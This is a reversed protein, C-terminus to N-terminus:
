ENTQLDYNNNVFMKHFSHKQLYNEFQPTLKGMVKKAINIAANLDRDIILGNKLEVQRDSLDLKKFREGTLCNTQSTWAENVLQVNIGACEGKYKLYTKFRSLSGRSQTSKNLRKNKGVLNKTKIDGIILNGLKNDVCHNIIKRSTQHQFNKNKNHLKKNLKKYRRSIKKHKRSGKKYKDRISQIYKIRKELKKFQNNKIAFSDTKNSFCTAIEMVGLDISLFDNNQIKTSVNESYVFICYYDNEEKKFTITKITDNNIEDPLKPVNIKFLDQQINVQKNKIKFGGCGQNYDYTFSKFYKWSKFRFPFNHTKDKTKLKFFSKINNALERSTNQASKANITLNNSIRYNKSLVHLNKFDCNCKM